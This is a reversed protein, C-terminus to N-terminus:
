EENNLINLLDDKVNDEALFRKNEKSYYWGTICGDYQRIYEVAKEIRQQLDIVVEQSEDLSTKYLELQRQLEKKEEYLCHIEDKLWDMTMESRVFKNM